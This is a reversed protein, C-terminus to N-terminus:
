PRKASVGNPGLLGIAGEPMAISLGRLAVHNQWAVEHPDRLDFLM